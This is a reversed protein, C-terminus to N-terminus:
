LQHVPLLTAEKIGFVRQSPIGQESPCSLLVAVISFLLTSSSCCRHLVAVDIFFMCCLLTPPRVHLVAADSTPCAADICRDLVHLMSAVTSSLCCLPTPSSMCCLPTPSPCAADIHRHRVHLMSPVIVSMCCLLTPTSSRCCLLTPTSSRCCRHVTLVQLMSSRHPVHLLTTYRRVAAHHVSACCPAGRQASHNERMSPFLLSQASHNERKSPPLLSQASHNERMSPLFVRQASYGARMCPPGEACLLRGAHVTDRSPIDPMCPTGLRYTRCALSPEQTYVPM